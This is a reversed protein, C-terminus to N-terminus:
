IREWGTVDEYVRTLRAVYAEINFQRVAKRGAAGIKARLAPCTILDTMAGCIAQTDGPDVIVCDADSKLFESTGGAASTIVALGWGLAELLANSMGEGRSPLVFIEGRALLTNVDSPGVWGPVTVKDAVGLDAALTRAAEIAGDGAITLHCRERVAPSLMAFAKLLDFAGKRAGIRGLFLIEISPNKSRDPLVTPYDSPNPIVLISSPDCGLHLTFYETWYMNLAIFCKAGAFGWLIIRRIWNPVYRHFIEGVAAHEHLVFRAGSLRLVVCILGKRLTSGRESFHVHFVTRCRSFAAAWTLRGVALVYVFFQVAISSRETENSGVYGTHTPVVVYKIHSPFLNIIKGFVRSPGGKVTLGPGM